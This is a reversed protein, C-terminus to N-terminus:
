LGDDGNMMKRLVSLKSHNHCQKCTFQLTRLPATIRFHSKRETNEEGHSSLPSSCFSRLKLELSSECIRACVLVCVLVAWRRNEWPPVHLPGPIVWFAKGQM